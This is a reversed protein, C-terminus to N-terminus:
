RGLLRLLALFASMIVATLAMRRLLDQDARAAATLRQLEQAAVPPPPAPLRALLAAIEPDTRAEAVATRALAHDLTARLLAPAAPDRLTAPSLPGLPNFLALFARDGDGAHWAALAVAFNNTSARSSVFRLGVITGLAVGEILLLGALFRSWPLPIGAIWGPLGLAAAGGM